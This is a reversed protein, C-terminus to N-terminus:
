LGESPFTGMSPRQEKHDSDEIKLLFLPKRRRGARAAQIHLKEEKMRHTPFQTALLLAFHSSIM